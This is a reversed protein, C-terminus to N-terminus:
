NVTTCINNNVSIPISIPGSNEVAGCSRTPTDNGYAAMMSYVVSNNSIKDPSSISKDYCYNACGYRLSGAAYRNGGSLNTTRVWKTDCVASYRTEVYSYTDSLFKRSGSRVADDGCGMTQPNLNECTTKYCSAAHVTIPIYMQIIIILLAIILFKIFITKNKM